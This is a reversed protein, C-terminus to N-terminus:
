FGVIVEGRATLRATRDDSHRGAMTFNSRMGERIGYSWAISWLAGRRGSRNDTLLYPVSGNEGVLDQRYLELSSRLEGSKMLRIRGSLDASYITSKQGTATEGQRYSSGIAVEGGNLIKRVKVGAKYGDVNGGGGFFQDRRYEFLELRQELLFSGVAQRVTVASKTDRKRRRQSALDRLEADEDYTLNLAHGSRLPILRVDASYRRSFFLYPEGEDAVFPLLWWVTRSGEPLLEEEIRSTFRALLFNWDRSVSFSKEGRRVRAQDSLIEDTRIFNGDPDPVYEGEEFVYNGEGPAVELYSIGRANRTEESVVYSGGLSFRQESAFYRYAMRALFSNEDAGPSTLWQYSWTLDYSLNGLKRASMTTLRSRRLSRQWDGDLSDEVFHEFLVSETPGSIDTRYRSYRVGSAAGTYNDKRGDYEYDFVLRWTARTQLALSAVVNDGNGWRNFGGSDRVAAIGSWALVATVLEHPRWRSGIGGSKSLFGNDYELRSYFPKLTIFAFPSVAAELEHLTEDSSVGWGRPLMFRREFDAKNLRARAKFAAERHRTALRWYDAQGHAQWVKKSTVSYYLGDNDNDDQHSLLNRDHQTQRVDASLSGFFSSRLGVSANYYDAREPVSLMVVPLYEGQTRGAFEYRGAGLFRYDGKREGVYSFTIAFEGNQEGVYQYVSDPLSDALLRYDGLSDPVVGSRVARMPDDGARALLLEDGPSLDGLLPQQRDDGERLWEVVFFLASDKTAAGAGALLLEGRYDTALPEYDVEIRSRDDIPHNVNFTIRGNAYDMIYDKNAGRELEEGDLWVTESGPVVPRAAAGEGIQYPGQSGSRGPFRFSDFRGKPRAAAGEVFWNTPNINFATGSVQKSRGAINDFRDQVVIDGIQASFTKSRLMLNVKDLESLRSNATGYSPNYGRDSISGSIELGPTLDGSINLDISQNFDSAGESRASFRFSKMGSIAVASRDARPKASGFESPAYGSKRGSPETEPLVRGYSRQVWAPLLSYSIVLTDDAAPRLGSLNFEGTVNDFWYDEGRSLLRDDFVLSDSNHFMLQAGIAYRPPIQEGVLIVTTRASM